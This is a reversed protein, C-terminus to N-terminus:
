HHAEPKPPKLGEIVLDNKQAYDWLAAQLAEEALCSCHVKPAPLGGLAAIVAKNTITLAEQITKGIVMETVVSSTAIAAACGFTKFKADTIRDGEVKIEVKMRDGCTVNGVDGVGDADDLTGVNRPNTFHDIVKETYAEM